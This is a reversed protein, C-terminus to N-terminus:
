NFYLVNKSAQVSAEFISYHFLPLNIKLLINAVKLKITLVFNVM